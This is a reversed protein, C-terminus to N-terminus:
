MVLTDMVGTYGCYEPFTGWFGFTFVFEATERTTENPITVSVKRTWYFETWYRLGFQSLRTHFLLHVGRIDGGVVGLHRPAYSLLYDYM